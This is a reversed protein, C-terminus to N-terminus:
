FAGGGGAIPYPDPNYWSGQVELYLLGASGTATTIGGIVGLYALPTALGSSGPIALISLGTVSVGGAIGGVYMLTNLVKKIGNYGNKQFINLLVGIGLIITIIGLIVGLIVEFSLSSKQNILWIFVSILTIVGLIVYLIETKYSSIGNLISYLAFLLLYILILSIQSGVVIAIIIFMLFFGIVLSIKNRVKVM